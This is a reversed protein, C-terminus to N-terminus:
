GEGGTDQMDRPAEVELEKKMRDVLSKVDDDQLLDNVDVYRSGCKTVSVHGWERKPRQRPLFSERTKDTRGM